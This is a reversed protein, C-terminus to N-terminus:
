MTNFIYLPGLVLGSNEDGIEPLVLVSKWKNFDQAGLIM